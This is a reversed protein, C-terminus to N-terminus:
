PQGRGVLAGSWVGQAGRRRGPSGAARTSSPLENDDEQSRSATRVVVGGPPSAAKEMASEPTM